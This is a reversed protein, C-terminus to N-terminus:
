TIIITICFCLMLVSSYMCLMPFHSIAPPAPTLYRPNFHILQNLNYPSAVLHIPPPPNKSGWLHMSLICVWHQEPIHFHPCHPHLTCLLHSIHASQPLVCWHDLSHCPAPTKLRLPVYQTYVSLITRLCSFVPPALALYRFPSQYPSTLTAHVLSWSFSFPHPNKVRLACVSHLCEAHNRSTFICDHLHPTSLPHHTHAPQPPPSWYDFSCSYTPNKSELLCMGPMCAWYQESIHFCLHHLHPPGLLHSIHAPEPLQSQHDLSHSPAPTKLGWLHMVLTCVQHQEPIHFCLCHLQLTGLLHSICPPQPPPSQQDISCSSTPTKLGWLCMGLTYPCNLHPTGLLHSIHGPQPPTSWHDISCSSAPNKACILCVCETNNQYM